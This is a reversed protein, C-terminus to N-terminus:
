TWFQRPKGHRLNEIEILKKSEFSKKKRCILKKYALKCECLHERNLNTDLNHFVRLAEFYREKAQSCELDFWEASSACSSENFYVKEKLSVHKSFLPDTVNRVINTFDTIVKNIYLISEKSSINIDSTLLNFAPLKGIVSARFNNKYKSDWRINMEKQDVPLHSCCNNCSLSFCFQRITVGNM